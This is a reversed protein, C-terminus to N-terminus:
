ADVAVSVPMAHGALRREDFTEPGCLGRVREVVRAFAVPDYGALGSEARVRDAVGILLAARMPEDEAALQALCELADLMGIRFNERVSDALVQRYLAEAETTRGLDLLVRAELDATEIAWVPPLQAVLDAAKVEEVLPLSEEPRGLRLRLFADASVTHSRGHVDDPMRDRMAYAEDIAARAEEFRGLLALSWVLDDELTALIEIDGSRRAEGIGEERLAIAHEHDGSWRPYEALHAIAHARRQPDSPPIADLNARAWREGEALAGVLLWYLGVGRNLARVSAADAKAEAHAFALRLNDRERHCVALWANREDADEGRRDARSMVEIYHVLHRDRDGMAEGAREAEGAAFEHITDLLRYRDGERRVLSHEVLESISDVTADAVAAAAQLDCGGAFAALGRLTRRAAPSLLEYSWGITERLAQHRRPADRPGRAAVDLPRELAARL